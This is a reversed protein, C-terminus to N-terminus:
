YSKNLRVYCDNWRYEIIRRLCNDSIVDIQKLQYTILIWIECGYLLVPIVLSKFIQINTWIWLYTGIIGSVRTSRTWLVMPWALEGYSKKVHGMMTISWAVMVSVM